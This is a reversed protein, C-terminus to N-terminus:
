SAQTCIRGSSDIKIPPNEWWILFFFSGFLIADFDNVVDCIIWFAPHICEPQTHKELAARLVYGTSHYSIGQLSQGQIVSHSFITFVFSIDQLSGWCPSYWRLAPWASFVTRTGLIDLNQLLGSKPHGSLPYDVKNYQIWVDICFQMILAVSSIFCTKM